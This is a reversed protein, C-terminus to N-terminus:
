GLGHMLAGVTPKVNRYRVPSKGSLSELIPVSNQTSRNSPLHSASSIASNIAGNAVTLPASYFSYLSPNKLRGSFYNEKCLYM